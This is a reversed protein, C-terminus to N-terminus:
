VGNNTCVERINKLRPDNGILKLVNKYCLSKIEEPSSNRIEAIAKIIKPFLTSNVEFNMKFYELTPLEDIEIVLLDDPINKVREIFFKRRDDKMRNLLLSSLGISYFYGQDTIKNMLEVSGSYSHYIAKKINYSKLLNLGEEETGRFHLSMFMNKKEAAELFIRFLPRQHPICAKDPAYKKDLGVEGLMMAGDCLTAVEDLRDIYEHAYWPLIGFSPFIFKSQNAYSLIKEYSPISCSQAFTIIHNRDIDQIVDQRRQDGKLWPDDLHFHTNVYM